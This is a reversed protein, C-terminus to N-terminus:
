KKGAFFIAKAVAGLEVATLKDRVSEPLTNIASLFANSDIGSARLATQERKSLFRAPVAKPAVTPAKGPKTMHYLYGGDFRSDFGTIQRPRLEGDRTEVEVISGNALQSPSWVCWDGRENKRFITNM